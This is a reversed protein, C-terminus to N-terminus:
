RLELRSTAHTFNLTNPVKKRRCAERRGDQLKPKSFVGQEMMRAPDMRQKREEQMRRHVLKLVQTKYSTLTELAVLARFVSARLM